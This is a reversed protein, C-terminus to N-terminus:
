RLCKLLGKFIFQIVFLVALVFVNIAAYTVLGVVFRQASVESFEFLTATGGTAMSSVFFLIVIEKINSGVFIAVLLPLALVWGHWSFFVVVFVDLIDKILGYEMPIVPWFFDFKKLKSLFFYGETIFLIFFPLSKYLSSMDRKKGLGPTSQSVINDDGKKM